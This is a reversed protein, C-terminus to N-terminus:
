HGKAKPTAGKGSRPRAQRRVPAAPAHAKFHQAAKKTSDQLDALAKRVGTKIEALAVGSVGKLEKLKSKVQDLQKDAVALEARGVIKSDVAFKKANAKLLDLQVKHEQIRTELKKRYSELLSM